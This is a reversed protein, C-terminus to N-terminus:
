GDQQSICDSTDTYLALIFDVTGIHSTYFKNLFSWPFWFLAPQEVHPLTVDAYPFNSKRVGPVSFRRM